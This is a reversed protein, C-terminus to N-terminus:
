SKPQFGACRFEPEDKQDVQTLICLVEEDPDNDRRCSMCLGPKIILDPDIETGDDRFFGSDASKKM